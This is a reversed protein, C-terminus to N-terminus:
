ETNVVRLKITKKLKTFAHWKLLQELNQTDLM